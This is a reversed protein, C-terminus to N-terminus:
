RQPVEQPTEQFFDATMERATTHGLADELARTAAECAPGSFGVADITVTGDAAITVKASGM